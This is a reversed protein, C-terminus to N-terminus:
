GSAIRSSSGGAGAGAMSVEALKIGGSRGSIGVGVTGGVGFGVGAGVGAGDETGAGVGAAGVDNAGM